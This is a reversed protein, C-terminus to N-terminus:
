DETPNFVPAMTGTDEQRPKRGRQSRPRPPRKTMAVGADELDVMAASKGRPPSDSRSMPRVGTRKSSKVRRARQTSKNIVVGLISAPAVELREVVRGIDPQAVGIKGHDMLQAFEHRTTLWEGSAIM